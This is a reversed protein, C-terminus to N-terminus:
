IRHVGGGFNGHKGGGKSTSQQNADKEGEAKKGKQGQKSINKKDAETARKAKKARQWRSQTPLHAGKSTPLHLIINQRKPQHQNPKKKSAEGPRHASHRNCEEIGAHATGTTSSLQRDIAPRNQHCHSFNEQDGPWNPHNSSFINTLRKPRRSAQEEPRKGQRRGRPNAQRTGPRAQTATGVKRAKMTSRCSTKLSRPWIRCRMRMRYRDRQQLPKQHVWLGRPAGGAGRVIQIEAPNVASFLRTNTRRREM